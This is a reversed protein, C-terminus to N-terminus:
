QIIEQFINNDNNDIPFHKHLHFLPSHNTKKRGKGLCCRIVINEHFCCVETDDGEKGIEDNVKKNEHFKM